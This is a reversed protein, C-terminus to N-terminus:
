DGSPVRSRVTRANPPQMPATDLGWGVIRSPTLRIVAEEGAGIAEATGRVEVGRPHWPAVSKLDDVVLAARGTETVDRYKRSTELSFGTIDITGLEANYSFGCPVVHPRGSRNCTALRCLRQEALYELENDTFM